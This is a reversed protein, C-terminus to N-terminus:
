QVGSEKSAAPSGEETLPPAFGLSKVKAFYEDIYNVNVPKGEYVKNSIFGGIKIFLSDYMPTVKTKDIVFNINVTDKTEPTKTIQVTLAKDSGFYQIEALYNALKKAAAEDLGDGKYYVNQNKNYDYRKGNNSCSALLTLMGALLLLFNIKKM